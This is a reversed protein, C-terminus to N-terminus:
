ATAGSSAIMTPRSDKAKADAVTAIPRVHVAPAVHLADAPPPTPPLVPATPPPPPVDDRGEHRTGTTRVRSRSRSRERTRRLTEWLSAEGTRDLQELKAINPDDPHQRGGTAESTTPRRYIGISRGRRLSTTRALPADAALVTDLDAEAGPNALIYTPLTYTYTRFLCDSRANFFDKTVNNASRHNAVDANIPHAFCIVNFVRLQPRGFYTALYQNIDDHLTWAWPADGDDGAGSGAPR